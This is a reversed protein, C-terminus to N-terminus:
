ISERVRNNWDYLALINEIPTDAQIYHASALIYGGSEGLINVVRRVERRVDDSTGHPLLEQIDVAGHFCVRKGFTNKIESIDIGKALPQLPNLVDIPLDILRDILPRVAGCSHYMIKKGYGRIVANVREHYPRVFEDWMKPSMLLSNQSAIDDYTYVMDIKDGAAEMANKVYSCYFECLKNMIYHPIESNLVMDMFFKENGCLGWAQEFIGGSQIKIYYREHLDGIKDSFSGWDWWSLDPWRDYKEIDEITEAFALPFSVTEHYTCYSNTVERVHIGTATLFSGDPLVRKAPGIYDPEVMRFDIGLKQLVREDNSTRFHERLKAVVEEVAWFDAPVRDTERHELAM